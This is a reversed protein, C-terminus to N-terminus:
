RILKPVMMHRGHFFSSGFCFTLTSDDSYSYHAVQSPFRYIISYTHMNLLEATSPSIAGIYHYYLKTRTYLHETM